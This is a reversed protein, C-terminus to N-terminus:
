TVKSIKDIFDAMMTLMMLVSISRMTLVLIAIMMVLVIVIMIVLSMDLLAAAMKEELSSTCTGAPLPNICSLCKYTFTFILRKTYSDVQKTNVLGATNKLMTCFAKSGGGKRKFMQHIKIRRVPLRKSSCAVDPYTFLYM